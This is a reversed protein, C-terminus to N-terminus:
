SAVPPSSRGPMRYLGSRTQARLPALSETKGLCHCEYTTAEVMKPRGGWETPASEESPYFTVEFCTQFWNREADRYTVSARVPLEKVSSDKMSKWEALLFGTMDHKHLVARTDLNPLVQRVEGSAIARIKRFTIAGQEMRIPQIQIDYACGRGRNFLTLPTGMNGRGDGIEAQICPSCEGAGEDLGTEARDFEGIEPSGLITRIKHMWRTMGGNRAWRFTGSKTFVNEFM